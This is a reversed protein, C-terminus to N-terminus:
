QEGRMWGEALLRALTVGEPWGPKWPADDYAPDGWRFWGLDTDAADLRQAGPETFSHHRLWAVADPPVDEALIYRAGLKLVDLLARGAGPRRSELAVLILLDPEHQDIEVASYGVIVDGALALFVRHGTSVRQRYCAWGADDWLTRHEALSRLPRITLPQDHMFGEACFLVSASDWYLTGEPCRAGSTGM